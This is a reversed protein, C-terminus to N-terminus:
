CTRSRPRSQLHRLPGYCVNSPAQCCCLASQKFSGHQALAVHPACARAEKGLELSHRRPEQWKGALEGPPLGLVQPPIVVPSAMDYMLALSALLTVGQRRCEIRQALVVGKHSRPRLQAFAFKQRSEKIVTIALGARASAIRFLTVSSTSSCAPTAAFKPFRTSVTRRYSGRRRSNCHSLGGESLPKTARPVARPVASNTACSVRVRRCSACRNRSARSAKGTNCHAHASRQPCLAKQARQRWRQTIFICCRVIIGNREGQLPEQAFGARLSREQRCVKAPQKGHAWAEARCCVPRRPCIGKWYKM